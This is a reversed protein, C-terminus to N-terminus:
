RVEEDLMCLILSLGPAQEFLAPSAVVFGGTPLEAFVLSVMALEKRIEEILVAPLNGSIRTIENREIRVAHQLGSEKMREVAIQAVEEAAKM